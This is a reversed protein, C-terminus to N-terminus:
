IDDKNEHVKANANNKDCIKENDKKRKKDINHHGHNGNGYIYIVIMTNNEENKKTKEFNLEM